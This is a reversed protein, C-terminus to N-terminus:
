SPLDIRESGLDFMTILPHLVMMLEASGQPVDEGRGRELARIIIPLDWFARLNHPQGQESSAYTSLGYM